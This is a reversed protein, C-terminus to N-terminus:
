FLGVRDVKVLLVRDMREVGIRSVTHIRQFEETPLIIGTQEHHPRM